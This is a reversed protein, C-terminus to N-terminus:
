SGQHSDDLEKIFQKVQEIGDVGMLQAARGFEARADEPRGTAELVRALKARYVGELYARGKASVGPRQSLSQLVIAAVPFSFPWRVHGPELAKIGAESSAQVLNDYHILARRLDGQQWAQNALLEQEHRYATRVLDLYTESATMSLWGMLVVGAVGGGLFTVVLLLYRRM